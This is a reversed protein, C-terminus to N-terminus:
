ARELVEIPDGARLLGTSRHAFNRGFVVGGTAGRRYTALTALPEKGRELTQQNTTTVACRECLTGGEFLVGSARFRQWADEAYPEAGEVIINPRFRDMLMKFRLRSNLDELSAWSLVLFPYADAFGVAAVKEPSMRGDAEAIRVLRYKGPREKGLYTTLWEAAEDGEDLAQCTDKWMKVEATRPELTRKVLLSRMGPGNLVLRNQVVAPEIHAVARVEIGMGSDGRQAIFNGEEDAVMWERDHLLGRKAVEAEKLQIGRAGKLPYHWLEAIRLPM